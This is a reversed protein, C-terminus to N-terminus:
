QNPPTRIKEYLALLSSAYVGHRHKTQFDPWLRSVGAISEELPWDFLHSQLVACLAPSRHQGAWCFTVLPMWRLRQAHEAIRLVMDLHDQAVPKNEDHPLIFRPVFRSRDSNARTDVGPTNDAVGILCNCDFMAHSISNFDCWWVQEFPKHLSM